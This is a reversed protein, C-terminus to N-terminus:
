LFIGCVVAGNRILLTKMERIRHILNYQVEDRAVDKQDLVHDDVTFRKFM